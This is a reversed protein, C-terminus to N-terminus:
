KNNEKGGFCRLTGDRTSLYLKGNAAALADFVPPADLRVEALKKGDALSIAWLLGGKPDPEDPPGAVLLTDGAIAMAEVAVPAKEITWGPTAKDPKGHEGFHRAFIRYEGKGPATFYALRWGDKKLASFGCTTTKSSVLMQGGVGRHTWPRKMSADLFGTKTNPRLGTKWNYYYKKTGTKLDFRWGRMYVYQGDSRLLDGLAGQEALRRRDLKQKGTMVSRPVSSRWLLKGSAADVACVQIGGDLESTRGASCYVANNLVVVTGYVPVPSELRGFAIIRREAPAIRRRWVLAGDTARLCYLWGDRCGFYVAGDHLTPPTDVPGGPTFTWRRKGTKADLAALELRDKSAALVLGGAVTPATPSGGVEARWVEKLETPIRTTSAGTRAPDHRYCPWASHQTTLPSHPTLLKAYAPGKSLSPRAKPAPAPEEPSLGLVGRLSKFCGCDVPFAYIMGNAARLGFTCSARAASSRLHRGTRVDLFDMTNGTILFRATANTGACRIFHHTISGKVYTDLTRAPKGTDVEISDWSLGTGLLWIRDGIPYFRARGNARHTHRWAIEGTEARLAVIQQDGANNLKLKTAAVVKGAHYCRLPQPVPRWWKERGSEVDICAIGDEYRRTKADRRKGQIFARDEAVVMRYCPAPSKVTWLVKGTDPDLRELLVESALLAGNVVRILRIRRKFDVLVEGTEANLAQLGENQGTPAYLRDGDVVLAGARFSWRRKRNVPVHIPKRWLLKGNHADRAVLRLRSPAAMRPHREDYVYFVRGGGSVWAAPRSYHTMYMAPRDIWQLIRPPGVVRDRLVWTGAGIGDGHPWEGLGDVPRKRICWWPGNKRLVARDLVGAERLQAALEKESRASPPGMLAVGNPVLVRFAEKVSLGAARAARLDAVILLNVTRAAYPLLELPLREVSARGYLKESRLHARAKELSRVDLALGHVLFNGARALAATRTGDTVGVHVCLGARVGSARVMEAAPDPEAAAAPLTLLAAMMATTYRTGM